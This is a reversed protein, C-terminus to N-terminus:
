RRRRKARRYDWPAQPRLEEWLGLWGRRATREATEFAPDGDYADYHWAHGHEVLSLNVAEGKCDIFGIARGYRDRAICRVDVRKGLVRSALERRADKGHPQALEPADIAALRVIYTAGKSEVKITDGDIVRVVKGSFTTERGDGRVAAWLGLSLCALRLSHSVLGFM